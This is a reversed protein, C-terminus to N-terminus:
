TKVIIWPSDRITQKMISSLIGSSDIAFIMVEMNLDVMYGPPVDWRDSSSYWLGYTSPIDGPVDGQLISRIHSLYSWNDSGTPMEAFHWLFEPSKHLLWLRSLQSDADQGTGGLAPQRSNWQSFRRFGHSFWRFIMPSIRSSIRSTFPLHYSPFDYRIWPFRLLHEVPFGMNRKIYRPHNEM